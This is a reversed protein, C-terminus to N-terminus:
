VNSAWTRRHRRHRDRKRCSSFVIEKTNDGNLRLNNAAAWTQLHDIEAPCLHANKGPVVLYTYDAFKFIRNGEYM